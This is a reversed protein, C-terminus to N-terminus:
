LACAESLTLLSTKLHPQVQRILSLDETILPCNLEQALAVYCADYASIKHRLSLRFAGMFLHKTAVPQLALLGLTNLAEEAQRASYGYRNVYKWVTNSCEVYLLDPAHLLPPDPKTLGNFFLKAERTGEEEVLLKLVASADVVFRQKV